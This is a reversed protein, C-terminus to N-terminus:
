AVFKGTLIQRVHFPKKFVKQWERTLSVSAVDLFKARVADHGM